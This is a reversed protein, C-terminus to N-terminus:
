YEGMARDMYNSTIPRRQDNVTISGRGSQRTLTSLYSGIKGIGGMNGTEGRINYGNNRSMYTTGTNIPTNIMDYPDSMPMQQSRAPSSDLLNFSGIGKQVYASPMDGPAMLPASDYGDAGVMGVIAAGAGLGLTVLGAMRGDIKGAAAGVRGWLGEVGAQINHAAGRDLGSAMGAQLSGRGERFRDVMAAAEEIGSDGFARAMGKLTGTDESHLTNANSIARGITDWLKDIGIKGSAGRVNMPLHDGTVAYDVGTYIESFQARPLLVNEVYERFPAVNGSKFAAELAASGQEAHNMYIPIKKNKITTLEPVSSIFIRAERLLDDEEGSAINMLGKRLRDFANNIKGTGREQGKEKLFDQRAAQWEKEVVDTASGSVAAGSTEAHFAMGKKLYDDYIRQQAVIKADVDFYKVKGAQDGFRKGLMAREEKNLLMTNTWDGDADGFSAGHFGFDVDKVTGLTGSTMISHKPADYFTAGGGETHWWDGQKQMINRFFKMVHSLDEGKAAAVDHFGGVTRKLNSALEDIQTQGFQSRRLASWVEDAEGKGVEQVHRFQQTINTSREFFSPNRTNLSWIGGRLKAKNGAQLDMNMGEAGTFYRQAMEGRDSGMYDSIATMFQKTNPFAAQGHTGGSIAKKLREEAETLITDKYYTQSVGFASGKIKGTAQGHVATAFLLATEKRFARFSKAVDEGKAGEADTAFGSLQKTFSNVHREYQSGIEISQGAAQKIETTSMLDMTPRAPFRLMRQGGFAEGAEHSIVAGAKTNGEALDLFVDQEQTKLYDSFSAHKSLIEQLEKVSLVKGPVDQPMTRSVQAAMMNEFPRVLKMNEEGGIKRKLIGVMFESTEAHSLGASRLKAGTLELIRPEVSGRGLGYDGHGTGPKLFQPTVFTGQKMKPDALLEQYTSEGFHHKMRAEVGGADFAYGTGQYFAGTPAIGANPNAQHHLAALGSAHYVGSLVGAAQEVTTRKSRIGRALTDMVVDSVQGLEGAGMLSAGRQAVKREVFGIPDNGKFKGTMGLANILGQSLFGPAKKFQDGSAYLVDAQHAGIGALYSATVGIGAAQKELMHASGPVVTGKFGASFLKAMEMDRQVNIEVNLIKKGYSDTQEAIGLNFSVTRPDLHLSRLGTSGIGLTRNFERGSTVHRIKGSSLVDFDSSGNARLFELLETSTKGQTRPDLIPITQSTLLRGVEHTAFGQGSGETRALFGSGKGGTIDFVGLKNIGGSMTGRWGVPAVQAGMDYTSYRGAKRVASQARIYMPERGTSQGLRAIVPIALNDQSAMGSRYLDMASGNRLALKGHQRGEIIDSVHSGEAQFGGGVNKKRVVIGNKRKREYERRGFGGAMAAEKRREDLAHLDEVVVFNQQSTIENMTHTRHIANIGGGAAGGPATLRSAVLMPETIEANMAARGVEDFHSGYQGTKMYRSAIAINRQENSKLYGRRKATQYGWHGPGFEQSLKEVDIAAISGMNGAYKTQGHEGMPFLKAGGVGTVDAALTLTYEHQRGGRSMLKAVVARQGAGTEVEALQINREADKGWMKLVTNYNEQLHRARKTSGATLGLVANQDRLAAHEIPNFIVTNKFEVASPVLDGAVKRFERLRNGFRKQVQDSGTEHISTLAAKVIKRAEEDPDGEGLMKLLQEQTNRLADKNFGAGPDDLTSLLSAIVAKRERTTTMMEDFATSKMFQETVKELSANEAQYGAHLSAGMAKGMDALAARNGMIQAVSIPTNSQIHRAGAWLALGVPLTGLAGAAMGPLNSRDENLRNLFNM